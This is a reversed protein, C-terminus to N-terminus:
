DSSKLKATRPGTCLVALAYCLFHIIQLTADGKERVLVDSQLFTQVCAVLEDALQLLSQGCKTLQFYEDNM